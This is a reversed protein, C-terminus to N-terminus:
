TFSESLLHRGGVQACCEIVMTVMEIEQNPQVGIKMLKHGAQHLVLFCKLHKYSNAMSCVGLLILQALQQNM